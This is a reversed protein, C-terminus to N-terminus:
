CSGCTITVSLWLIEEVKWIDVCLQTMQIIASKKNFILM